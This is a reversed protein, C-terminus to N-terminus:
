CSSRLRGRFTRKVQRDKLHRARVSIWTATLRLYCQKLITKATVTGHRITFIQWFPTTFDRSQRLSSLLCITSGVPYRSSEKAFIVWLESGDLSRKTVIKSSV